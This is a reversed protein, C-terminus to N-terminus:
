APKIRRKISNSEEPEKNEAKYQHKISASEEPAKNESWGARLESAIKEYTRDTEM